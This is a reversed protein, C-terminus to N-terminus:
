SPAQPCAVVAENARTVWFTNALHLGGVNAKDTASKYTVGGSRTFADHGAVVHKLLGVNLAKADNLLDALSVYKTKLAFAAVSGRTLGFLVALELRKSVVVLLQTYLSRLANSCAAWKLLDLLNPSAGELGEKRLARLWGRRVSNEGAARDHWQGLDVNLHLDVRLCESDPSNHALPYVFQYDDDFSVAMSWEHFHAAGKLLGELLLRAAARTGCDRLGGAAPARAYWRVLQAVLLITSM